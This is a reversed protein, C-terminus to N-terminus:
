LEQNHEQTERRGIQRCRQYRSHSFLAKSKKRSHDPFQSRGAASHISRIGSFIALRLTHPDQNVRLHERTETSACFLVEYTEDIAQATQAVARFLVDQNAM